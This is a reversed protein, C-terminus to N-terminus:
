LWKVKLRGVFKTKTIYLKDSLSKNGNLDFSKVKKAETGYFHLPDNWNTTPDFGFIPLTETNCKRESLGSVMFVTNITDEAIKETLLGNVM